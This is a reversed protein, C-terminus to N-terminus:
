LMVEASLAGSVAKYGQVLLARALAGVQVQRSLAMEELSQYEAPTVHINIRRSRAQGDPKRRPGRPKDIDVGPIAVYVGARRGSATKRCQGSKQIAGMQELERRRPSATQHRLGLAIEIQSDTAGLGGQELIYFYVRHRITPAHPKMSEAAEQSTESGKVYPLTPQDTM